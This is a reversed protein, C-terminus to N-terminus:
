KWVNMAPRPTGTADFLARNEWQGSWTPANWQDGRIWEPAWYFVGLGNPTATTIRYLETLFDRQGEPTLPYPLAGQPGGYTDYATEAIIIPKHYRTAINQLNSQLDTLPGNWFPYYSLGIIDFPVDHHRLHDFFDQSVAQSHGKDIHIMIRIKNEPDVARVGRIGAKLLDALNNWKPEDRTSKQTAAGAAPEIWLPGADPWLMGNTIENGIAVMDPACNNKAFEALTDRTYTFVRDTLQAHNLKAWAAPTTQHLPDAWADSYHFDLLWKLGAAHVRQALQLTYALTNVQGDKGSPDVFLRLRVYNCGHNKFIILPDQARGADRYTVGHDELYQLMSLDAGNIREARAAPTLLM